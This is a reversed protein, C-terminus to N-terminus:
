RVPPGASPVRYRPSRPRRPAGKLDPVPPLRMMPLGVEQEMLPKPLRPTLPLGQLPPLRKKRTNRARHRARLLLPLVRRRMEECDGGSSEDWWQPGASSTSAPECSSQTPLAIWLSQTPFATQHSPVLAATAPNNSWLARLVCASSHGEPRVAQAVSTLTSAAARQVYGLNGRLVTFSRLQSAM